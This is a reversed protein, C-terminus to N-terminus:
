RGPYAWQTFFERLDRASAEEMAAQFDATTVAKGAYKRTYQRIGLWFREDGLLERLEHLLLAGKQYVLTRDDATPRAWSAFVLPGDHGRDVVQKYRERLSAIDQLYVERGFRHERYAAAMFTAFGENLWFETWARCTVTNGWWQHALEHALLGVAMPNAAVARGYEESVISLGAMEQGATRAVLAQTYETGPYPMGSRDEFFTLIRSSERFVLGLNEADTVSALYRLTVGGARETHMTFRGAVFGFTYSPVAREQQWEILDSAGTVHRRSRQRGSAVATWDRPVVLQLRLTARAEPSDIAPMWQSTSFVTYLQEREPVFVLGSAPTGHYRITIRRVTESSSPPVSIRVSATDTEFPLPRGSAEIADITLTGRNLTVVGGQRDAFRVSITESGAVRGTAVDPELRVDYHVIAFSDDAASSPALSIM